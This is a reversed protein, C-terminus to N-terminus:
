HILAPKQMWPPDISVYLNRPSDAFFANTPVYLGLLWPLAHGARGPFLFICEHCFVCAWLGCKITNARAFLCLPTTDALRALVFRFKRGRCPLPCAIATSHTQRTRTFCPAPPSAGYAFYLLCRASKFWCREQLPSWTQLLQQFHGRGRPLMLLAICRTAAVCALTATLAAFSFFARAMASTQAAMASRFRFLSCSLGLRLFFRRLCFVASLLVSCFHGCFPRCIHTAFLFAAVPRLRRRQRWLFCSGRLFALTELVPTRM